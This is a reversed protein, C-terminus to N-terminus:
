SVYESSGNCKRGSESFASAAAASLPLRENLELWYVSVTRILEVMETFEV